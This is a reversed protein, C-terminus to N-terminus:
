PMEKLVEDTVIKYLVPGVISKDWPFAKRMLIQDSVGMEADHNLPAKLFSEHRLGAALAPGISDKDLGFEEYMMTILRYVGDTFMILNSTTVEAMRNVIKGLVDDMTGEELLSEIGGFLSSPVMMTTTINKVSTKVVLGMLSSLSEAVKKVIEPDVEYPEEEELSEFMESIPNDKM